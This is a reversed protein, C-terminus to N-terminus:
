HGTSFYFIAILSVGIRVRALQKEYFHCIERTFGAKAMLDEGPLVMALQMGPCHTAIAAAVECSLFGGGIVVAPEKCTDQTHFM